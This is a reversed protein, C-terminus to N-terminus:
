PCRQGVKAFLFHGNFLVLYVYKRLHKDIERYPPLRILHYRMDFVVFSLKYPKAKKSSKYEFKEEIIDLDKLTIGNSSVRTQHLFQKDTINSLNPRNALQLRIANWICRGPKGDNQDLIHTM